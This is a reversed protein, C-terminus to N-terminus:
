FEEEGYQEKLKELKDKLVITLEETGEKGYINSM